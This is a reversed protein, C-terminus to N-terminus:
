WSTWGGDIVINTGTMYRSAQSVLFLIAGNYDTKQAMRGLVTRQCYANHFTEEQNDYVGGPTLVNVRIGENGWLTALHKALGIIGAKSASYSAPCNLPDDGGYINNESSCNEYIRQDPGVIGYISATLVISGSSKRNMYKRAERACLFAGTLNIDIVSNFTKKTYNDNSRYYGAPKAMVNYILFDLRNYENYIDTFLQQIKIEDTVDCVRGNIDINRQGALENSITRCKEEDVDAVIVHAGSLGLTLAFQQGLIGAGGIIVGVYEKVDFIDSTSELSELQEYKKEIM